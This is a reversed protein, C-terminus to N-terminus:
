GYLIEKKEISKKSRYEQYLEIEEEVTRGSLIIEAPLIKNCKSCKFMYPNESPGCYQNCHIPIVIM